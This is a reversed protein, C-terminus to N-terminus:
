PASEPTMLTLMSIGPSGLVYSVHLLCEDVQFRDWAPKDGLVPLRIADGSREPPGLLSRVRDRGMRADLDHPLPGAYAEFGEMPRCYVFVSSVVRDEQAVFALGPAPADVRWRGDQEAAPELAGHLGHTSTCITSTDASLFSYPEM